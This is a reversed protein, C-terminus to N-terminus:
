AGITWIEALVPSRVGLSSSTTSRTAVSRRLRTGVGASLRKMACIVAAWGGTDSARRATRMRNALWVPTAGGVKTSKVLTAAM